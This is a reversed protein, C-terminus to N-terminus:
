RGNAGFGIRAGNNANSGYAVVEGNPFGSSKIWAELTVASTGSPFASVSSHSLYNGASGNFSVGGSIKGTVATVTGTQSLGYGASGSDAGVTSGFHYVSQYGAQWVGAKNEQSTSVASNGYQVYIITDATHSLTPIRVWFNVAGTSANYSEIEHDLKTSGAADSTFIIDYGNSNQVKGGNAVTALYSYTGSVLVPFNSQDTNAVKTHDITIARRYSYSQASAQKPCALILTFATVLSLILLSRSVLVRVMVGVKRDCARRM